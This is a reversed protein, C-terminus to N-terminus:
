AYAMPGDNVVSYEFEAPQYRSEQQNTPDFFTGNYQMILNNADNIQVGNTKDM